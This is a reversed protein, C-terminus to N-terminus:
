PCPQVAAIHRVDVKWQELELDTVDCEAVWEEGEAFSICCSKMVMDETRDPRGDLMVSVIANPGCDKIQHVREVTVADTKVRAM